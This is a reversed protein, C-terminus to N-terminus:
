QQFNRKLRADRVANIRERISQSFEGANRLGVQRIFEELLADPVRDLHQAFFAREKDNPPFYVRKFAIARRAFAESTDDWLSEFRRRQEDRYGDNRFGFPDNMALRLAMEYQWPKLDRRNAFIAEAQPMYATLQERRMQIQLRAQSYDGGGATSDSIRVIVDEIFKRKNNSDLGSWFRYLQQEYPSNIFQSAVGILVDDMYGKSEAQFAIDLAALSNNTQALQKARQSLEADSVQALRPPAAWDIGYIAAALDQPKFAPGGIEVLQHPGVEAYRWLPTAPFNSKFLPLYSLVSQQGYRWTAALREKGDQRVNITGVNCCGHSVSTPKMLQMRVVVGDPISDLTTRKLCQDTRGSQQLPASRRLEDADCDKAESLQTSRIAVVHGQQDIQVHVYRDIIREALLATSGCCPEGGEPYDLVLTLTRLTRLEVPIPRDSLSPDTSNGLEYRNWVSVCCWAAFFVFPAATLGPLRRYGGIIVIGVVASFWILPLLGPYLAQVWIFIFGIGEGLVSTLSALFAYIGALVALGLVLASIHRIM